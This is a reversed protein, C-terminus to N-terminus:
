CPTDPPLMMAYLPMLMLAVHRLLTAIVDYREDDDAIDSAYLQRRSVRLCCSPIAYRLCILINHRPM